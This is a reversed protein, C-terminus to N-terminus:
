SLDEDIIEKIHELAGLGTNPSNIYATLEKKLDEYRAERKEFFEDIDYMIFEHIEKFNDRLKTDFDPDTISIPKFKPCQKVKDRTLKYGEDSAEQYAYLIFSVNFPYAITEDYDNTLRLIWWTYPNDDFMGDALRNTTIHVVGTDFAAPASIYKSSDEATMTVLDDFGCSELVEIIHKISKVRVAEYERFFKILSTIVDKDRDDSYSEILSADENDILRIIDDYKVYEGSPLKLMREHVEACANFRDIYHKVKEFLEKLEMVYEEM